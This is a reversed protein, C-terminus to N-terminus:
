AFGCLAVQQELTLGQAHNSESEAEEYKVLTDQLGYLGMGLKEPNVYLQTQHNENM